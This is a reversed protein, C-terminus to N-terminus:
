KDEEEVPGGEAAMAETDEETTHPTHNDVEHKEPTPPEQIVPPESPKQDPIM